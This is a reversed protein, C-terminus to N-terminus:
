RFPYPERGTVRDDASWSQPGTHMRAYEALDCPLTCMPPRPPPPNSTLVPSRRDHKRALKVM